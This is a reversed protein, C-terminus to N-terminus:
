TTYPPKKVIFATKHNMIAKIQKKCLPTAIPSNNPKKYNNEYNNKYLYM